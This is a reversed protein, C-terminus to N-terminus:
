LNEIKAQIMKKDKDINARAAMTGNLDNELDSLKKYQVRMENEIGKHKLLCQQEKDKAANIERNMSETQQASNDKGEKIDKLEHEINRRQEKKEELDRETQPITEKQLEDM